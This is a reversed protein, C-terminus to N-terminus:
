VHDLAETSIRDRRRALELKAARSPPLLRLVHAALAAIRVTHDLQCRSEAAGLGGQAIGGSGGLDLLASLAFVALVPM